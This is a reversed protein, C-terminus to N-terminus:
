SRGHNWASFSIPVICLLRFAISLDQAWRCFQSDEQYRSPSPFDEGFFFREGKEFAFGVVFKKSTYPLIESVRRFGRKLLAYAFDQETQSGEYLSIPVYDADAVEKGLSIAKQWTTNGEEKLQLHVSPYRASSRGSRNGVTIILVSVTKEVTERGNLFRVTIPLSDTSVFELKPRHWWDIVFPFVGTVVTTLILIVLLLNSTSLLDPHFIGLFLIIDIVLLFPVVVTLWDPLQPTKM